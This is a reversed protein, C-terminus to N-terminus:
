DLLFASVGLSVTWAHRIHKQEETRKSAGEGVTNQRTEQFVHDIADIRINFSKAFYFRQGIGFYGAGEKGQSTDVLGAGLNAYIDSYLIYGELLNIKGYIPAFTLALSNSSKLQVYSPNVTQCVTDEEGNAGCYRLKRLAKRDASDSAMFKSFAYEVGLAETLFLGARSGLMWTQSYSENLVQGGHVSVEPRMEKLFYRNQLVMPPKTAIFGESKKENSTNGAGDQVVTQALAPSAVSVCVCCFFVLASLSALPSNGFMKPSNVM